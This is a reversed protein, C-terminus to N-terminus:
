GGQIEPELIELKISSDLRARLKEPEARIEGENDYHMPIVARPKFANAAKAAEEVDMTYKGGIPLFAVGIDKLSAMEPVFDTDGAHYFNKGNIPIVVGMGNGKPHFQKSPNYAPITKLYFGKASPYDGPRVFTALQSFMQLKRQCPQAAVIRTDKGVIRGINTPDCHDYHEHTVIILDATAAGSPVKYPDIYIKKGGFELLFGSRCLWTVKVGFLEVSSAMGMGRIVM